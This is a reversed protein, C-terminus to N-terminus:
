DYRGKVADDKRSDINHYSQAESEKETDHPNKIEGV